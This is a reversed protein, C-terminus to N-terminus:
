EEPKMSKIYVPGGMMYMDGNHVDMRRNYTEHELHNRKKVENIDEEFYHTEKKVKGKKDYEKSITEDDYGDGDRDIFTKSSAATGFKEDAKYFRTVSYLDQKGDGNVDKFISEKMLNGQKDFHREVKSGDSNFITEIKGEKQQQFKELLKNRENRQPSNFNVELTM